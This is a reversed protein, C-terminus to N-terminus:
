RNGERATSGILSPEAVVADIARDIPIRAIHAPQDVWQYLELRHAEAARNDEGGSAQDFLGSELVSPQSPAYRAPVAPEVFLWAVGVLAIVVGIVCLGVLAVIRTRLQEPQRTTTTM